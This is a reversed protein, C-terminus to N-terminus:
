GTAGDTSGAATAGDTSTTDTPTTATPDTSTPAAPTVPAAPTYVYADIDLDASVIPFTTTSANFTLTDVNFLRGTAELTGSHVGVLTRLRFLFDSLAFFNGDFTVDFRQTQTSPDALVPGGPSPKISSFVIGSQQAINSLTLLMGPMDVTDPMARALKFIDAVQISPPRESQRLQAQRVVTKQQLDTVQAAIKAAQANKPSVLMMHAVLGFVLLAIVVAGAQIRKDIKALKKKM